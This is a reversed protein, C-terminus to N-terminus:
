PCVFPLPSLRIPSPVSLHYLPYISLLLSGLSSPRRQSVPPQALAARPSNPLPSIREARCSARRQARLEPPSPPRKGPLFHGDHHLMRLCGRAPSMRSSKWGRSEAGMQNQRLTPIPAPLGRAPTPTSAAPAQPPVPTGSAEQPDGGSGGRQARLSSGAQIRSHPFYMGPGAGASPIRRPQPPNYCLHWLQRQHWRSILTLEPNKEPYFPQFSFERGPCRERLLRHCISTALSAGRALCCNIVSGHNGRPRAPSPLPSM